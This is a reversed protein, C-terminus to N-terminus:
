SSSSPGSISRRLNAENTVAVDGLQIVAPPIRWSDKAMDYFPTHGFNTKALAPPLSELLNVVMQNLTLYIETFKAAYSGLTNQWSQIANIYSHVLWVTEEPSKDLLTKVNTGTFGWFLTSTAQAFATQWRPDKADYRIAIYNETQDNIGKAEFM